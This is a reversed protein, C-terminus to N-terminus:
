DQNLFKPNIGKLIEGLKQKEEPSLKRWHFGDKLHNSTMQPFIEAEYDEKIFEPSIAPLPTDFSFPYGEVINFKLNGIQHSKFKKLAFGSPEIFQKQNFGMMYSSLRFSPITKKFLNPFSLFLLIIFSLGSFAILATKKQIREFLLVIAIVFFVDIFFRYQASFLLVLISKILVSIFILWIIKSKKKISYMLFGLLSLIFLWHIKGKIGDLFLWNKIFDFTSFQQIESYKYQLNYTKEIATKASTQLLEANPKCSIGFDGIQVPFIPFGFTWINKFIFILVVPIGLLVFNLNKKRIILGYLFCLIPLWIMTPKIAFVFVSFAFLQATNQNEKLIENLVILSFVIVPLDPSPSQSFLFLVPFVLLHLWSKKEFIYILYVILVITNLRLFPDSFNSFGAQIFHWFSMQGLLIDLNSIGKILGFESIWKVTPVYYGFYDLIFPYYSGFFITILALVSFTKYQKLFEFFEEFIRFYFFAALGILVTIAEIYINLPLFFALVCWILTTAFIGTLVKSSLGRFLKGMIDEVLHGIGALVPLIVITSFLIYLM